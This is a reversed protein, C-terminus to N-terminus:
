WLCSEAGKHAVYLEELLFLFPSQAQLIMRLADLQQFFAADRIIHMRCRPHVFLRGPGTMSFSAASLEPWAFHSCPMMLTCGSWLLARCCRQSEPGVTNEVTGTDVLSSPFYQNCLCCLLATEPGQEGKILVATVSHQLARQWCVCTESGKM